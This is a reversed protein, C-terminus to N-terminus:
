AFSMVVLPKQHLIVMCTKLLRNWYLILGKDDIVHIAQGMSQLINYSQKATFSMSSSGPNLCDLICGKKYKSSASGTEWPPVTEDGHGGGIERFSSTPGPRQVSSYLPSQNSCDTKIGFDVHIGSSDGSRVLKAMEERLKADRVELEQIKKLLQEQLPTDDEM